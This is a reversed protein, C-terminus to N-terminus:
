WSGRALFLPDLYLLAYILAGSIIVFWWYLGIGHMLHLGTLMFFVSGYAHTDWRFPLITLEWYRLAFYGACLLASGWLGLRMLKLSGRHAGRMSITNPVISLLLLVIGATALEVPTRTVPTPPWDAPPVRDRLYFYSVFMLAFVTSEIAVLLLIGWWMPARSGFAETALHGVELCPVDAEDRAQKARQQDEELQQHRERAEHDALPSRAPQEPALEEKFPVRPWYWGILAVAILVAGIVIGWPTFISVVFTVGTGLAAWLPWSTPGPLETRHDPETDVVRTVLIETRDTRLGRV